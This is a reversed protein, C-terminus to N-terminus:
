STPMKEWMVKENWMHTTYGYLVCIHRDKGVKEWLDFCKKQEKQEVSRATSQFEILNRRDIDNWDCNCFIIFIVSFRHYLLSLSFSLFFFLSPPSSKRARSHLRFPLFPCLRLLYVRGDAGFPLLKTWRKDAKLRNFFLVNRLRIM